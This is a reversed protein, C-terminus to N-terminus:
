LVIEEQVPHIVWQSPHFILLNAPFAATMVAADFPMPAATAFLM